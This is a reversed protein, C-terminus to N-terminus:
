DMGNNNNGIWMKFLETEDKESLGMNESVESIARPYDYGDCNVLRETQEYAKDIWTDM